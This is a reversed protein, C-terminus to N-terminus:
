EISVDIVYEVNIWCHYRMHLDAVREYVRLACVLCSFLSVKVSSLHVLLLDFVHELMAMWPAFEMGRM